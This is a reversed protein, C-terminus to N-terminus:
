YPAGYASKYNKPTEMTKCAGISNIPSPKMQPPSSKVDSQSIRRAKICVAHRSSQSQGVAQSLVRKFGHSSVFLLNVVIHNVITASLMKFPIVDCGDDIHVTVRKEIPAFHVIWVYIIWNMWQSFILEGSIFAATSLLSAQLSCLTQDSSIDWPVRIVRALSRSEKFLTSGSPTSFLLNFFPLTRACRSM